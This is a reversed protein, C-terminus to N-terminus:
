ATGESTPAEPELEEDLLPEASRVTPAEEFNALTPPSATLWELTHGGWPDSPQDGGGRLGGLLTGIAALVGLAILGLGAVSVANLWEIGTATERGDGFAGSLADPLAYLVTGLLLIVATTRVGADSLPRGAVKTAWYGLGGIVAIAAGYLTFHAQAEDFLTGALDFRNIAGIAGVLVAALLTLLAALAPVLPSIVRPRGDRFTGIWGGILALVPLVALFAMAKYLPDQTVNSYITVQVFAGFGFIAFAAIAWHVIDRRGQRNRAAVPVVDAIFGLAPAAYAYVQPQHVAWQIRRFMVEGNAGFSRQGYRHDVYILVLQGVLVGFSLIWITGAVLMSWAFFPVRTLRMGPARLAMVTTVVSITGLILAVTVLTYSTAWLSVGKFRGGGPGGNMLYSAVYLGSGVLWGWFSLAAARPFAIASAGVQLPVVVMALGLTAPVLFLFVLSTSRFTLVQNFTDANLITDGLTGDIKDIAVLLGTALTALFFFLSFGIYLRGIVKHDGSGLVAALGGVPPETTSTAEPAVAPRPAAEPPADTVAM